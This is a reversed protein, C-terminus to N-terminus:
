PAASRRPLDSLTCRQGPRWRLDPNAIRIRVAILGSARDAEPGISEIVGSVEGQAPITVSIAQGLQLGRTRELPTPINAVIPDLQIVRVVVPQVASVFEGERMKVEAVLGSLPSHVVRRRRAVDAREAELRRLDIQESESLVRAQAADREAAARALEDPPAAGGRMLQELQRWRTEKLQLDAQAALLGGRSEALKLALQYQSEQLEDDLRAILDGQRVPAGLEVALQQIVGSEASSVRVSRYPELWGENLVPLAADQILNLDSIRDQKQAIVGPATAVLTTLVVGSLLAFRLRSFPCAAFCRCLM